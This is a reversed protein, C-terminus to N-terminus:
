RSQAGAGELHLTRPSALRRGSLKRAEGAARCGSLAENGGVLGCCRRAMVANAGPTSAPRKAGRNVRPAAIPAAPFAALSLVIAAVAPAAAAVAALPAWGGQEGSTYGHAAQGAAVHVRM